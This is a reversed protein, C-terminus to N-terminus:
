RRSVRRSSTSGKSQHKTSRSATGDAKDRGYYGYRYSASKHNAVMNLAFGSIPVEVTELSKVASALDRKKTREDAVVLILGHTLRNILVADIVPVVPPSDVLIFDYDHSLKQFLQEMPESGLLESPNPPRQGAPLVFLSSTGWQQVVDAPEARGLLITTLGVSGEIGLTKAVSPNRLDADLLLVRSGADAMALALNVSTTTKGEGPISSTVVFSHGGTTVDVFLMNTRLRRISEAHGGFPDTEVSLLRAEPAKILPIEGLIPRKSLAEIDRTGRIKTDLTHRVLALGVGLALGLLAGLALNRQPDPSIPRDPVVAPEVATAQVTQNNLALLPSFKTAGAALVPGAANAIEAAMTPNRDTATIVLMNTTESVFASVNLPVGEALGLEARLPEMISPSTLVEAYTALDQRSIVYTGQPGNPSAQQTVSAETSLYVKATASYVPDVQITMLAATGLVVLVSVAIIRWRTRLVAFFEHLTM